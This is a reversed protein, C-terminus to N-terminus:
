DDTIRVRPDVVGYLLDVILNIIIFIIAFVLLCGQVVPIDRQNVSTVLLRGMGPWAFINETIVAGGFLYGFRLGIVTIVPILANKMVHKLFLAKEKIGKARATRIYDLYLVELVSSRTMRSILAINYVALCIAPLIYHKWTGTGALPLLKMKIGFIFMMIFALWFVPVSIGLITIFSVLTEIFKGKHIASILGFFLGFFISILISVTSLKATEILRPMLVNFVPQRTMLSTGLNGHLLKWLYDTYQVLIPRDLGMEIRVREVTEPDAQVGVYLRAPDGPIIQFAFFVITVVLIVTPISIM